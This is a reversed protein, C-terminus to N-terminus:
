ILRLFDETTEIVKGDLKDLNLERNSIRINKLVVDKFKAKNFTINELECNEFQCNDFNTANFQCGIFASSMLTINKVKSANLQVDSFRSETLALKSVHSANISCDFILSNQTLSIESLNGANLSNGEFKSTSDVEIDEAKCLNFSNDKINPNQKFKIKSMTSSNGFDQDGIFSIGDLKQSINKFIGGMGSIIDDVDGAAKSQQSKNDNGSLAELLEVMQEDSIKGQKNMEMIKQIEEKM